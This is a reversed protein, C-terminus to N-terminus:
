DSVIGPWGGSHGRFRYVACDHATIRQAATRECYVDSYVCGDLADSLVSPIAGRINCWVALGPEYAWQNYSFVFEFM